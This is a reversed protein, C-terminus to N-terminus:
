PIKFAGPGKNTMFTSSTTTTPTVSAKFSKLCQNNINPFSRDRKWLVDFIRQKIWELKM